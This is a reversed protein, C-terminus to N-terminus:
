GKMRSRKGWVLSLGKGARESAGKDKVYPAYLRDSGAIHTELWEKLFQLLAVTLIVRGAAFEERFRLVKSTLAEHEAKHEAYQPYHCERMLREEYGFHVQTYRLLRSLVEELVSKAKGALMAVHLEHAIRFLNQHQGDVGSIQICYTTNWEFV